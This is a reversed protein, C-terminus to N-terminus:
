EDDSSLLELERLHEVWSKPLWYDYSEFSISISNNNVEITASVEHRISLDVNGRLAEEVQIDIEQPLPLQKLKEVAADIFSNIVLPSNYLLVSAFYAFSIEVEYRDDFEAKIRENLCSRFKEESFFPLVESLLCNNVVQDRLYRHLMLMDERSPISFLIDMIYYISNSAEWLYKQSDGLGALCSYRYELRKRLTDKATVNEENPMGLKSILSTFAASHQAGLYDNNYKLKTFSLYILEQMITIFLPYWVGEDNYLQSNGRGTRDKQWLTLVNKFNKAAFGVDKSSFDIGPLGKRIASLVINIELKNDFLKSAKNSKRKIKRSIDEDTIVWKSRLAYKEIDEVFSFSVYFSYPGSFVTPIALKDFEASLKSLKDELDASICRYRYANLLYAFSRMVENSKPMYLAKAKDLKKTLKELGSAIHELSDSKSNQQRILITHLDEELNIWETYVAKLLKEDAQVIKLDLNDSVGKRIKEYQKPLYGLEDTVLLTHSVKPKRLINLLSPETFAFLNLIKLKDFREQYTDSDNIDIDIAIADKIAKRKKKLEQFPNGYNKGKLAAENILGTYSLVKKLDEEKLKFDSLKSNISFKEM